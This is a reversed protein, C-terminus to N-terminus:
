VEEKNLHEQKVYLEVLGEELIMVTVKNKLEIISFQGEISVYDGTKIKTNGGTKVVPYLRDPTKATEPIIIGMKTHTVQTLEVILYNDNVTLQELELDKTTM